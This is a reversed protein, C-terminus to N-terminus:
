QRGGALLLRASLQRAINRHLKAALAPRDDLQSRQTRESLSLIRGDTTATVDAGRPGELLYATEGVVDGPCLTGVPEGTRTVSLEGDLVVFVNRASGGEKM